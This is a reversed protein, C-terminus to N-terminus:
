VIQICQRLRGDKSYRYMDDLAQIQAETQPSLRLPKM